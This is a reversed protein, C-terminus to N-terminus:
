TELLLELDAFIGGYKWLTALRVLEFIIERSHDDSLVTKMNGTFWDRLPTDEFYTVLSLRRVYVNDYSELERAFDASASSFANPTLYLLFVNMAPNTRAASEVACARGRDLIAADTGRAGFCGTELFFICRDPILM